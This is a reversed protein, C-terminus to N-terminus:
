RRRMNRQPFDRQCAVFVNLAASKLRQPPCSLDQYSALLHLREETPPRGAESSGESSQFKLAHSSQFRMIAEPDLVM